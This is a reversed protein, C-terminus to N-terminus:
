GPDPAMRGVSFYRFGLSAMYKPDFVNRGDIVIDGAMLAKVRPLDINRFQDWETLVLLADAGEAADYGNTAYTLNTQALYRQANTMGEPDYARVMAGEAQLKKIVKISPADRMDDTKPKYTLGLIGITMGELKPLCECLKHFIRTKQQDNVQEVAELIRFQHNVQKGSQILAQIDKPFCSGGYGIGPHLFRHGIRSDAGMGRSVATVDAGTRECYNAVENIFSIKTALFANSAYKILEASKCDTAIM